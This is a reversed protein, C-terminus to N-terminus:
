NYYQIEDDDGGGVDGGGDSIPGQSAGLRGLVSCVTASVFVRYLM